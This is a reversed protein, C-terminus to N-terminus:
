VPVRPVAALLTTGAGPPSDITLTGGLDTLRERLGELGGNARPVAGGQGGDRVTLKILEDSRELVIEVRVSPAHKHVNTLAERVVYYLPLTLVGLDVPDIKCGADLRLEGIVREIATKLGFTLEPPDVGRKLSRIQDLAVTLKRDLEDAQALDAPDTVGERLGDLDMRAAAVTQQVGDHLDRRFQERARDFALREAARTATLQALRMRLLAHLQENEAMISLVKAFSRLTGPDDGLVADGILVAVRQGDSGSIWQRFGGSAPDPLSRTRGRADIVVDRDPVVFLLEATADSLAARVYATLTNPTRRAPLADVFSACVLRSRNIAVALAATVALTFLGVINTNAHLSVTDPRLSGVTTVIAATASWVAGALTLPRLIRRRLPPTAALRRFAVAAFLAGLALYSLCALVNLATTVAEQPWISLWLTDPPYGLWEPRSFLMLVTCMGVTSAPCLEVFLRERRDLQDRGYRLIGWGIPTYFLGGGVLWSLTAGWGPYIDLSSVLWGVAATVFCLGTFLEDTVVLYRGLGVMSVVVAVNVVVFVPESRIAPWQVALTILGAAGLAVSSRLGFPVRQGLSDPGSLSFELTPTAATLAM